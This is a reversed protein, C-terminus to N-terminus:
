QVQGPNQQAQETWNNIISAALDEVSMGQEAAMDALSRFLLPPLQVTVAVPTTPARRVEQHRKALDPFEKQAL